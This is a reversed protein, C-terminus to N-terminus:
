TLAQLQLKYELTYVASIELGTGAGPVDFMFAVPGSGAYNLNGMVTNAVNTLLNYKNMDMVGKAMAEFASFETESLPIKGFRDEFAINLGPGGIDLGHLDVYFQTNLVMIISVGVSAGLGLGLRVGPTAYCQWAGGGNGAKLADLRMISGELSEFGVVALMGGYKLVSGVWISYDPINLAM